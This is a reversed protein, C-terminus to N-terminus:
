QVYQVFDHISMSGSTKKIVFTTPYGAVSGLEGTYNSTEILYVKRGSGGLSLTEIYEKCHPCWSAYVIVPTPVDVDPVIEKLSKVFILQM